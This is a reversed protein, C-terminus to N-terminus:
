FPSSIPNLVVFISNQCTCINKDLLVEFFIKLPLFYWNQPKQAREGLKGPRKFFFHVVNLFLAGVKGTALGVREGQVGKTAAM